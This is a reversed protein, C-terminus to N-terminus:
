FYDNIFKINLNIKNILRVKSYIPLKIFTSDILVDYISLFTKLLTIESYEQFNM